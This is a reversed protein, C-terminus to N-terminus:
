SQKLVRDLPSCRAQLERLQKNSTHLYIATTSIQAHGAMAQVAAIDMGNRLMMTLASHRLTHPSCRVNEIGAKKGLGQVIREVHRRKLPEGSRTVFLRNEYDFHGRHTLYKLLAKVLRSGMFVIRQREGKGERVLISRNSLNIDSVDLSILESVRLGCDLFVLLMTYNRLGEFTRKRKEAVRLLGAIQHEELVHPLQYPLKPRRIGAMPNVELLDEQVLYNYFAKLHRYHFSVTTPKLGRDRLEFLYARLQDTTADEIATEELYMQFPTLVEQYVKYTRKSFGDIQLRLYFSDVLPSTKPKSM